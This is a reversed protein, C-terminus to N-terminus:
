DSTLGSLCAQRAAEACAIDIANSAGSVGIAGVVVGDVKIPVGGGLATVKPHDLLGTRVGESQEFLFEGFETTSMFFSAATWAKYQAYDNSALFAGPMRLMGVVLGARDVIIVVIRADCNTAEGIAAELAAQVARAPLDGQWGTDQQM